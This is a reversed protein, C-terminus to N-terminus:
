RYYGFGAATGEVMPWLKRVEEPRLNEQWRGIRVSHDPRSYARSTEAEVFQANNRNQVRSAWDTLNQREQHLDVGVEEAIRKAFALPNRLMDEFHVVKALVKVQAYGVSNLYHWHHACRELLPRELWSEWDLPRPHHGWHQAIGVKLSCITDLPHRVIWFVKQPSPILRRMKALPFSLGPSPPYAPSEKPVKFAQPTAYDLETLLAFPPESYFTYSSLHQFLEGFISTGSRGCGLILVHHPSPHEAM